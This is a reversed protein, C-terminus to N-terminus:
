IGDGCGAESGTWFKKLGRSNSFRSAGALVGVVEDDVLWGDMGDRLGFVNYLMGVGKSMSM